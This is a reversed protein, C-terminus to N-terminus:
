NLVEAGNTGADWDKAAQHRPIPSAMDNLAHAPTTRGPTGESYTREPPEENRSRFPFGCRM